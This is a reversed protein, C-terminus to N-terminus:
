QNRRIAPWSRRMGSEPDLWIAGFHGGLIPTSALRTNYGAGVTARVLGTSAARVADVIRQEGGPGTTVVLVTPFGDYDRPARRSAVYRHYAAFKARLAAAHVTARDFELFFGYESRGLHLLGYGDPRMRGRACAAANRWELLAADRQGGGCACNCRVSCRCRAHAGPACAVRATIRGTDRRGGGALGHYRVATALSLGMSGALLRLGQVTAELVDDERRLGPPLEDRSLVCVLGRRVLGSRRRHAWRVDRGLVAGAAVTPLFLHRGVIDLVARDGAGLHWTGVARRARALDIPRPM